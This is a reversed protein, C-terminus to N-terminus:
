LSMMGLIHFIDSIVGSGFLAHGGLSLSLRGTAKIGVAIFGQFCNHNLPEGLRYTAFGYKNVQLHAPVSSAIGVSICGCSCSHGKGDANLVPNTPGDGRGTWLDFTLVIFQVRCPKAAMMHTFSCCFGKFASQIIQGPLSSAPEDGDVGDQESSSEM